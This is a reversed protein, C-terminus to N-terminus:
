INHLFKALSAQLSGAAKLTAAKLTAAIKMMGDELSECEVAAIENGSGRHRLAEKQYEAAVRLALRHQKKIPTKM